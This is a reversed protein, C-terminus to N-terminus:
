DEGFAEDIMECIPALVDELTLGDEDDSEEDDDPWDDPEGAPEDELGAEALAAYFEEESLEPGEEVPQDEGHLSGTRALPGMVSRFRARTTPDDHNPYLFFTGGLGSIQYLVQTTGGYPVLHAPIVRVETGDPASWARVEPWDELRWCLRLLGTDM